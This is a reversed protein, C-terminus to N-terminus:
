FAQVRRRFNLGLGRVVKSLPDLLGDTGGTNSFSDPFKYLDDSPFLSSELHAFLNDKAPESAKLFSLSCLLCNAGSQSNQIFRHSDGWYLSNIIDPNPSVIVARSM